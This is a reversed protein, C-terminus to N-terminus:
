YNQLSRRFTLFFNYTITGTAMIPQGKMTWPSFIARCAADRAADQFLLPGETAGAAIVNGREEILVTVRVLGSMRQARGAAPYNAPPISLAKGQLVGFDVIRPVVAGTRIAEEAAQQKIAQRYTRGLLLTM